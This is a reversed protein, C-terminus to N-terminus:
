ARLTAGTAKVVAAIIKQAVAEIAADTLTAERPQLTVDIALSIKGEPLKDGAYRDFLAVDTILARDAGRAARLLTEAPTAADVLFAFDRRVPQFPALDPASKKRRKPDPIADLFVEFAVAPGTLDLAAAIRPHVEGFTALVTKPGQRLVGSRGPHYFGPADATASLAAMPVGLAALVALADAKADFADLARAPAAWHRPTEGTRIGCALTLQGDIGTHRYAGGIECLAVAAHGRAANRAAALLLSAVPTPRMQDLDAAIPNELRLSAPTDGFLAATAHDLFGYTVCDMMGRAAIVRRALGQRAQRPSLAAPPVPSAVPLSLPAIADLGRIRLVEEILDAEHEIVACGAAAATAREPSLDAPQVLIGGRPDLAADANGSAVQAVDNRWPPVAVTVSGADRHSAVFGLHELIAVAEDPLVTAGGLEALRAFRLTAQRQWVPPTGAESIESAEGGCLEIMTATAMELALRPLDQDVGREFRSRADTTVAHRRGSLAIRVPDFIACEIFCETTTEDCGTPAGGIIGGLAEPGAADAIVGDEETLAYTKGNLAELTEGARAMRMTLTTDQVKAVDFVHLPRGLGFCYLNTVDVLANIPRQGIATLWDQLWQPSPGNTVGRIARGLVYTCAQPDAIEWTLPSAYAPTIVPSPLPKLRGLGAAALDRAVGHVSLADGRNPTVAIEIVPDGLKAYAVYAMGIPADAPLDIIGSHDDGLGMERASLMMAESAVGRIEGKKLTIGTGPIFAGPLAVVGRMGARANPAGCVVSLLPGEGTNVKLARLRDANPHQEAEVVEAIRFGALAAARDEVGEVELGITSLTTTIQDLTAETELHARLWSLTFKM